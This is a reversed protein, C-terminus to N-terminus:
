DLFARVRANLWQASTADAATAMFHGWDTELAHFEAGPIHAAAQRANAAPNYLDLSAAVILTKASISQLAADTNGNFRYGAGVDHADYAWSQYIWDIPDFGQGKWWASRQVLWQQVATADAFEQDVQAPTRMALMQMVPTWADWVDPPYAGAVPAPGLRGLLAQRAAHNIVGAWPATRAMPTMAAVHSVADPYDVAWQLAQMGGMSAGVVAVPQDIGLADLVRKQSRVMDRITFRPFAMGRQSRSNSPSTTKGNGIANIALIRHRAPDLARGPGIMFDLRHHISGIACLAVVVPKSRDELGGHVAFSITFDEITEGSDLPM